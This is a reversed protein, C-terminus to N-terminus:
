RPGTPRGEPEPEGDVMTEETDEVGATEQRQVVEGTPGEADDDAEGNPPAGTVETVEGTDGLDTTGLAV